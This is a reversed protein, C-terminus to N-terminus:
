ARWADLCDYRELTHLTGRADAFLTVFKDEGPSTLRGGGGRAVGTVGLSGPSVCGGGAVNSEGPEQRPLTNKDPSNQRREAADPALRLREIHLHWSRMKSWTMEFM